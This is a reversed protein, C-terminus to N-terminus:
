KTRKKKGGFVEPHDEPRFAALQEPTVGHNRRESDLFDAYTQGMRLGDFEASPENHWQLLWPILEQLGVLMPLLRETTWGERDKRDNYLAVLAQARELHDWGAWGYVPEGDEDSECGPYSIFREKPVDLKGRLSWFRGDRYDKQDYKPPVPIPEALKEGADERRQLDWTHQWQAHKELGAPTFRLAALYPITDDALLGAQSRLADASEFIMAALATSKADDLLQQLLSAESTVLPSEFMGELRSAFHASAASRLAADHDTLTWRRKCDLSEILGLNRSADTAAQRAAEIATPKGTPPEYGSRTFWVADPGEGGTAKWVSREFPRQGPALEGAHLVGALEQTGLGFLRYVMWDLEEQLAVMEFFLRNSRLQADEIRQALVAADTTEILRAPSLAQRENALSDLKRAYPLLGDLEPLPLGKLGTGAFEYRDEWSTKSLRGGDGMQDGGKPYFVQKMWFCATSSNLYALLALHDDETATEPLKIIPASRNFVKGGRDLVFHNHTAVFAFTISLPTKLKDKVVTGMERWDLGRQSKTKGFFIYNELTSRYPWLYREASPIERYEGSEGHAYVCAGSALSWDRIMEGTVFPRWAEEAFGNRRFTNSTSATLVEDTGPVCMVGITDIVDALTRAGRDEILSKLDEAGGGALSWPHVRLDSRTVEAISVYDNEFGVERYHDAISSWVEGRAPDDPTKPEGRKALVALVEDGCPEESSGFLLVTPTGHGPIYAGSTNVILDLNVTPLYDEILTKGFERKMFSNATIMGVRAGARGLQFFRETLPVALTYKGAATRYSARYRDRLVKDKTSIYPPNGVVAAFRRGLVARAAAEDELAYLKGEWDAASQGDQGGFTLQEHQPNHLLSDAVVVHIPLAPADALRAFGAKDLFALTLRFRAVAVAYPNIDAGYVQDLARRAAERPALGPEERLRADYVREFAGLLFHGSGCTPDILDTQDLGFKQIAPDLTQDLIFSEVFDPTQLLAFRKRVNENLDQYLDGLFRTDDQGFRLAPADAHPTRFLQLLAKAGEASPALKWVPNHQADFLGAAAPLRSLERFVLLLYDRETLSPAMEFFTRQSDAAGPGALRHQGLLGRDELVRVFVCSLLWAAAVQEVFADRWQPFADATREDAKEHAHQAKLARTVAPSHEIRAELDKELIALVGRASTLLLAADLPARPDAQAPLDALGQKKKSGRKTATKTATKTAAQPTKKKAAM